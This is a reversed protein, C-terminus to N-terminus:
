LKRDKAITELAASFFESVRTALVAVDLSVPIKSDEYIVTVTSVLGCRFMHVANEDLVQWRKLVTQWYVPTGQCTAVEYNCAAMAMRIIDYQQQGNKVNIIICDPTVSSREHLQHITGNTM